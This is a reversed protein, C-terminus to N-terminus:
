ISLTFCWSENGLDIPTGDPYILSFTLASTTYVGTLHVTVPLIIGLGSRFSVPVLTGRPGGVTRTTAQNVATKLCLYGLDYGSIEIQGSRHSVGSANPVFGLQQSLETQVIVSPCYTYLVNSETPKDFHLRDGDVHEVRVCQEGVRVTDGVQVGHDQVSLAVGDWEGVFKHSVSFHCIDGSISFSAFYSEGLAHTLSVSIQRALSEATYLRSPTYASHVKNNGDLQVSFTSNPRISTARNPFIGDVIQISTIDHPGGLSFNLESDNLTTNTSNCYLITM